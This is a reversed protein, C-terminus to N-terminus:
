AIVRVVAQSLTWQELVVTVRRLSDEFKSGVAAGAPDPTNLLLQPKGEADLHTAVARTSTCTSLDGMMRVAIGKFEPNNDNAYPQHLEIYYFRDTDTVAPAAFTAQTFHATDLQSGAGQVGAQTTSGTRKRASKAATARLRATLNVALTCVLM